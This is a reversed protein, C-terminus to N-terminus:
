AANNFSRLLTQFKKELANAKKRISEARGENFAKRQLDDYFAADDHINIILNMLNKLYNDTPIKQYPPNYCEPPFDLLLGGQGTAEPLGGRNTAITPIGNMHAEAIV